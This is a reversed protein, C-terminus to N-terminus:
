AIQINSFNHFKKFKQDFIKKFLFPPLTFHFSLIIYYYDLIISIIRVIKSILIKKKEM